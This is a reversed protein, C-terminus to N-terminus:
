LCYSLGVRTAFDNAVNENRTMARHIYTPQLDLFASEGLRFKLGGYVTLVTGNDTGSPLPVYVVGTDTSLPTTGGESKLNWLGLGVSGGLYPIVYKSLPGTTAAAGARLGLTALTSHSWDTEREWSYEVQPGLFLWSLPYYVAGPAIVLTQHSVGSAKHFVYGIEGYIEFAGKGIGAAASLSACLAVFVLLKKM